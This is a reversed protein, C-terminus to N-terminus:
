HASQAALDAAFVGQYRVALVRGIATLLKKEADTFDLGRKSLAYRIGLFELELVGAGAERYKLDPLNPESSGLVELDSDRFFYRVGRELQEAFLSAVFPQKVPSQAADM